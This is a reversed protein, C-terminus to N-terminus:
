RYDYTRGLLTETLADLVSVPIMWATAYDPEPKVEYQSPDDICEFAFTFATEPALEDVSNFNQIKSFILASSIKGFEAQLQELTAEDTVREGTIVPKEVFRDTEPETPETNEKGIISDVESQTSGTSNEAGGETPETNEKGVTGENKAETNECPRETGGQGQHGIDSSMCGALLSLIYGVALFLALVKKM